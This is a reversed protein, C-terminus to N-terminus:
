AAGETQQLLEPASGPELFASLLYAGAAVALSTLYPYPVPALYAGLVWASVGAWLALFASRAGGRRSFLGFVVVVVIGASGFASAQEVLEYVREARMAMVYASVGFLAVFIRATTVKGRESM